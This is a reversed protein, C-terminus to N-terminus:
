IKINKIIEEPIPPEGAPSKGPYRWCSIIKIKKSKQEKTRKNKQKKKEDIQYMLWIETPRRKSKITQMIAVTRPAIGKEIREPNRLLKKLRRESLNYFRMKEKVHKTWFIEETDKPEKFKM